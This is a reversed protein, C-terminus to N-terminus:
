WNLDQEYGTRVLAEGAEEKFWRRFDDTAYNKWDGVKGSRYFWMPNTRPFGASTKTQASPEAAADPDVGLFEYMRRQEAKTETICREYRLPCITTGPFEGAEIRAIMELDAMVVEAWGRAAARVWPEVSFLDAPRKAFHEPDAHFRETLAAMNARHPEGILFRLRLQHFTWSTVVDRGDRIINFHPCGPVTIYLNESTHDGIWQADPKYRALSLTYDRALREFLADLVAPMDGRSSTLWSSRKAEAVARSLLKLPGESQTNIDPHLNMLNRVWTTGSRMHGSIFFMQYPRGDPTHMAINM